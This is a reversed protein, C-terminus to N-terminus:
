FCTSPISLYKDFTYTTAASTGQGGLFESNDFIGDQNMDIWVGFGGYINGNGGNDVGTVHITHGAVFAGTGGTTTGYDQYYNTGTPPT